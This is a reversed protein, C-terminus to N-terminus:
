RRRRGAAILALGALAASGPAPVFAAWSVETQNAKALITSEGWFTSANLDAGTGLSLTLIQSGDVLLRAGTPGAELRVTRFASTFDITAVPDGTRLNDNGLSARNDGFEAIIWQGADDSLYLSFGGRRFGSFNGFDAGSLRVTAEVYATGSSFLLPLSPEYTWYTTGGVTTPGYTMTGAAITTPANFSGASTWGQASPSTGLAPDYTLPQALAVSPLVALAAFAAARFPTNM